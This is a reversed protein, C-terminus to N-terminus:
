RTTGDTGQVGGEPVEPWVNRLLGIALDEGILVAVLEMFHSLLFVTRQVAATRDVAPLGILDGEPGLSVDALLPTTRKALVLARALLVEFGTAGVLKGFSGQLKAIATSTVVGPEALGEGGALEVAVVASAFRQISQRPSNM